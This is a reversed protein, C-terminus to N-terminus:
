FVEKSIRRHSAQNIVATGVLLATIGGTFLAGDITRRIGYNPTTGSQPDVLLKKYEDRQEQIQTEQKVVERAALIQTREQPMINSEFIIGQRQAANIIRFSESIMSTSEQSPYESLALAKMEKGTNLYDIASTFVAAIGFAAVLYASLELRRARTFAEKSNM